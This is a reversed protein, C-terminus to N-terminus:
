AAALRLDTIVAGHAQVCAIVIGTQKDVADKQKVERVVAEGSFRLTDGKRFAQGDSLTIPGCTLKLTAEAPRKGGCDFAALQATGDVRLEEVPPQPDPDRPPMEGVAAGAEQEFQAKHAADIAERDVVDTM